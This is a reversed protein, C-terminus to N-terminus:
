YLSSQSLLAEIFNDWQATTYTPADPVHVGNVIFQPTGTIARSAAYKWAYRADKVVVADTFGAIIRSNSLPSSLVHIIYIIHGCLSPPLLSPHLLFPLLSLCFFPFCLSSSSSFFSLSPFLSPPLSPSFFPPFLPPLSLSSTLLSSHPSVPQCFSRTERIYFM